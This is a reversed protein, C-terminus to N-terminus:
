RKSYEQTWEKGDRHIEAKLYEGTCKRVHYVWVMCVVPYKIPTKILNVVPMCYPSSSKLLLNKLQEHYGTPIGRGNDVVTISNDKHITTVIIPVTVPWTSM